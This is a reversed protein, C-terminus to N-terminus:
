AAYESEEDILVTEDSYPVQTTSNQVTRRTGSSVKRQYLFWLFAASVPLYKKEYLVAKECLIATLPLYECGTKKWGGSATHMTACIDVPGEYGEEEMWNTFNVSSDDYWKFTDDDTDFFMGLSIYEPGRWRTHFSKLIFANEEENNISIVDAGSANGKCFQRADDISQTEVTGQMLAYCSSGFSVWASSPCVIYPFSFEYDNNSHSSYLVNLKRRRAALLPSNGTVSCPAPSTEMRQQAEQTVPSDSSVAQPSCGDEEQSPVAATAAWAVLLGSWLGPSAMAQNGAGDPKSRKADSLAQRRSAPVVWQRGTQPHRCRQTARVAPSGEGNCWRVLRQVMEFEDPGAFAPFPFLGPM